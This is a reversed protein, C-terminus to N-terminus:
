DAPSEAMVIGVGGTTGSGSTSGAGALGPPRLLLACLVGLAAIGVGVWITDHFGAVAADALRPRLAAPADALSGTGTGLRDAAPGVAEKIRATVRLTFFTALLGVGISGSLRQGVNFLTNADALQGPSLGALMALLLPQIVLGIGLGRGAMIVSVIWLPTDAGVLLLLATTAGVAALGAIIGPRLGGREGLTMGYRTSLGMVLGQPLLVLGSALAGHGQIEQILLPLLFLVSFMAVSTITCLWVALASQGRRLLRLDVAPHPRGRAWPGYGSLLLVGASWFPWSRASAWGSTPGESAGYLALVLGGSLLLGGPDFRAGRDPADHIGHRRLAPLAALAALGIPANVLFIAPWSWASVLLGGVTPGLAPGLFLV